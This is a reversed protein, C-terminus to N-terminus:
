SWIDKFYSVLGVFSRAQKTSSPRAIKTIATVKHPLYKIGEPILLFGLYETTTVTWECKLSNVTFGNREPPTLLLQHLKDIHENYSGLSFIDINDVDDYDVFLPHILFQFFDPSDKVSIPLRKYQYLGFPTSIVCLKQSTLDIEFAYLGISINIKTIFKFGKRRQMFEPIIPLFYRSIKLLKNLKRFDSVWRVTPFAWNSHSIHAIVMTSPCQNPKRSIGYLFSIVEMTIDYLSHGSNIIDTHFRM